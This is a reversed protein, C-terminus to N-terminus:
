RGDKDLPKVRANSVTFVHAPQEAKKILSLFADRFKKMCLLYLLFRGCHDIEGTVSQVMWTWIYLAKHDINNIAETYSLRVVAEPGIIDNQYRDKIVKNVVWTVHDILTSVAVVMQLICLRRTSKWKDKAATTMSEAKRSQVVLGTAVLVCFIFIAVCTGIKLVYILASVLENAGSKGYWNLQLVHDESQGRKSVPSGCFAPSLHLLGTFVSIAIFLSVLRSSNIRGFLIPTWIAICREMSLFTTTATVSLKMADGVVWMYLLLDRYVVYSKTDEFSM